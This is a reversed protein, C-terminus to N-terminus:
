AAVGLKLLRDVKKHQARAARLYGAEVAIWVGDDADLFNLLRDLHDDIIRQWRDRESRLEAADMDQYRSM